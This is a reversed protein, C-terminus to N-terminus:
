NSVLQSDTTGNLLGAKPLRLEQDAFILDPHELVDRNVDFIKADNNANGYFRKAIERLGDGRKVRYTIFEQKSLAERYKDGVGLTMPDLSALQTGVAGLTAPRYLQQEPFIAPKEHWRRQASLSVEHLLAPGPLRSRGRKSMETYALGPDNSHVLKEALKPALEFIRSHQSADFKLGAQMAGIWIWLLAQDSLGRWEAGGGVSSHVGPFWEQQYPAHIDAADFGATQNLEALNGWLTPEFDERTEDIAVAHRASKVFDSLATDHFQFKKNFKDSFLISKPVGLAGVTDWVGLYRVGIRRTEDLAFGECNSQRWEHEQQSVLTDSCYDRRFTMMQDLHASSVQRSRYLEIAQRAESAHRRDLIGSNSLLGCFSRATFAGRSFGFVFLEDGPTYNFILNQYAESLNQLLGEGLIGGKWYDVTGGTGVGEDYYIIQTADQSLPLVSQATLLVNTPHEADLRNWTGDFCFVLRKNMTTM